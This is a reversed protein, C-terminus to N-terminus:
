SYRLIFWTKHEESDFTILTYSDGDGYVFKADKVHPLSEIYGTWSIDYGYFKESLEWEAYINRDMSSFTVVKLQSM